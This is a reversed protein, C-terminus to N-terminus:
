QISFETHGQMSDIAFGLNRSPSGGVRFPRANFPMAFRSPTVKERALRHASPQLSVTLAAADGVKGRQPFSM